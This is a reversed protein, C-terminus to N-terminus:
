TVYKGLLIVSVDSSCALYKTALNRIICGFGGGGGCVCLGEEVCLGGGGGGGMSKDDRSVVAAVREQNCVVHM